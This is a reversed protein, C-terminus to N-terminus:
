LTLKEISRKLNNRAKEEYKKRFFDTLYIHKRHEKDLFRQLIKARETKFTKEEVWEYEKRINREYEDFIKEEQGFISLDIDIIFKSELDEPIFNHKTALVLKSVNNAFNEPLQLQKCSKYALEAAKEENDKAKTDYIADHFWLAFEVETANQILPKASDLENLCHLLHYPIHYFRNRESYKRCLELFIVEQKPHSLDYPSTFGTEVGLERMLKEWKQGLENYARRYRMLMRFTPQSFVFDSMRM